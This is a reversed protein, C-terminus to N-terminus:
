FIEKVYIPQYKTIKTKSTATKCNVLAASASYTDARHADGTIQSHTVVAEQSTNAFTLLTQCQAPTSNNGLCILTHIVDTHTTYTSLM